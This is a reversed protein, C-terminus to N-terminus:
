NNTVCVGITTGTSSSIMKCVKGKDCDANTKCKTVPSPTISPSPTKTCYTSILSNLRLCLTSNTTGTPSPTKCQTQGLSIVATCPVSNQVPVISPRPRDYDSPKAAPMTPIKREITQVTTTATTTVGLVGSHSISLLASMSALTLVSLSLALIVFKNDQYM